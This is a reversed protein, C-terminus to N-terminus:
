RAQAKRQNIAKMSHKASATHTTGDVFSVVAGALMESSTLDLGVDTWAFMVGPGPLGFPDPLHRRLVFGCDKDIGVVCQPIRIPDKGVCLVTQEATNFFGPRGGCGGAVPQGVNTRDILRDGCFVM